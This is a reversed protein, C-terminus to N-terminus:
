YYYISILPNGRNTPIGATYITREPSFRCLDWEVFPIIAFTEMSKRLVRIRYHTTKDGVAMSFCCSILVSRVAFVGQNRLDILNRILGVVRWATRSDPVKPALLDDIWLEDCAETPSLPRSWDSRWSLDRSKPFPPRTLSSDTLRCAVCLRWSTERAGITESASAHLARPWVQLVM